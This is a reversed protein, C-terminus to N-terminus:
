EPNNKSWTQIDTQLGKFDKNFYNNFPHQAKLSFYGTVFGTSGAAAGAAAGMGGTFLAELGTGTTAAAAGASGGASLGYALGSALSVGFLGVTGVAWTKPHTVPDLINNYGGIVNGDVESLANRMNSTSIPSGVSAFDIKNELSANNLKLVQAAQYVDNNGASHM